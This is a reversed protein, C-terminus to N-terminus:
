QYNEKPAKGHGRLVKLKLLYHPCKNKFNIQANIILM